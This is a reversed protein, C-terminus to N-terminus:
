NHVMIHLFKMLYLMEQSLLIILKLTWANRINKKKEDYGVFIYKKVKADLKGRRLDPVHVYCISGLVKVRSKEGFMLEYPTKMTNPSLPLLQNCLSCM